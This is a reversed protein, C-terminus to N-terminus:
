RKRGNAYNVNLLSNYQINWYGPGSCSGQPCGKNVATEIRISNTAIFASRDTFYNKTLNHLNRPCYFDKLAKIVSPCWAADFASKVNLSVLAVIQGKTIVEDIFDKAAMAADTTSKQPTFGFQNQNLLDNYLFHM